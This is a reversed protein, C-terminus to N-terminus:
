IHRPEKLKAGLVKQKFVTHTKACYFDGFTFSSLIYKFMCHLVMMAALAEGHRTYYNGCDIATIIKCNGHLSKM